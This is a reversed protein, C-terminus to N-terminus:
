SLAVETIAWVIVVLILLPLTYVIDLLRTGLKLVMPCESVIQCGPWHHGILVAAIPIVISLLCASVTLGM